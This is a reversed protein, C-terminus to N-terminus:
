EAAEKVARANQDGVEREINKQHHRTLVCVPEGGVVHTPCGAVVLYGQRMLLAAFVLPVSLALFLAALAAYLVITAVVRTM